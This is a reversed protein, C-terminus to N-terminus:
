KKLPDNGWNMLSYRWRTDSVDGDPRQASHRKIYSIVRHMQHLDDDTYDAKKKGLLTVIRRGEQHGTSEGSGDKQGVEKSDDTKLWEELEHPTMNVLHKFESITEDRDKTDSM